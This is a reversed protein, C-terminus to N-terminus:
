HAQVPMVDDWGLSLGAKVISVVNNIQIAPNLLASLHGAPFTEQMTRSVSFDCSCKLEHGTGVRSKKEKTGRRGHAPEWGLFCPM